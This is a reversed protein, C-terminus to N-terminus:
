FGLESTLQEESKGAHEGPIISRLNYNVDMKEGISDSRRREAYYKTVYGPTENDCKHCLVLSSERDQPYEILHGWCASCVYRAVTRRALQPTLPKM